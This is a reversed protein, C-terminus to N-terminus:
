LVATFANDKFHSCIVFGSRKRYNKVAMFFLDTLGQAPSLKVFRFSM